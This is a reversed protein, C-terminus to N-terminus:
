FYIIQEMKGIGLQISEEDMPELIRFRNKGDIGKSSEVKKSRGGKIKIWQSSEQERKM